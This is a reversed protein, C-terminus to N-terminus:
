GRVNAGNLQSTLFNYAMIMTGYIEVKLDDDLLVPPLEFHIASLQTSIQEALNADDFAGMRRLLIAVVDIRNMLILIQGRIWERDHFNRNM